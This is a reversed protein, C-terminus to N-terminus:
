GALTDSEIRRGRGHGVEFGRRLVFGRGWGGHRALRGGHDQQALGAVIDFHEDYATVLVEREHAAQPHKGAACQRARIAQRLHERADRRVGPLAALAEEVHLALRQRLLLAQPQGDGSVPFRELLGAYQEGSARVAAVAFGVQERRYLGPSGRDRLTGLQESRQELLLMEHEIDFPEHIPRM